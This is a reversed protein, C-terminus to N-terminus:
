LGASIGVDQRSVQLSRGAREAQLEMDQMGAGFVVEIRDETSQDLQSGAPEYDAADLYKEIAPTSLEGCECQAVRDRGDVLTAFESHGAAKHAVSAVSHITFTGPLKSARGRRFTGAM